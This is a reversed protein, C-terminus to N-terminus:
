PEASRMTDDVRAGITSRTCWRYTPTFADVRNEVDTSSNM